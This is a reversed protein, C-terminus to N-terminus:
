VFTGVESLKKELDSPNGNDAIRLKPEANVVVFEDGTSVSDLSGRSITDDMKQGYQQRQQGGFSAYSSFM